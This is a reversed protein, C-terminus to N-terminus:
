RLIGSPFVASCGSVHSACDRYTCLLLEKNNKYLKSDAMSWFLDAQLMEFVKISCFGLMRWAEFCEDAIMLLKRKVAQMSGHHLQTAVYVRNYVTM